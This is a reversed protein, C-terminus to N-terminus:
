FRDIIKYLEELAKDPEFAKVQDICNYKMQLVEDQNNISWKILQVLATSNELSFIKGTYNDIVVEKNFHWDSAIVPLGAKLCEIIAIPFGEGDYFTPFLMMYHKSLTEIANSDDLYPWVHVYAQSEKVKNEFEEKYDDQPAGYIDLECIIKEADMNVRRIADIASSIGKEKCVRSYTCFRYPFCMSQDLMRLDDIGDRKSFVPAYYVHPIKKKKLFEQIIRTEVFTADVRQLCKSTVPEDQYEYMLSGGVLSFLIKNKLIGRLFLTIPLITRRGNKGLVLVLIDSDVMVRVLEVLKKLINKKWYRTDMSNVNAEGYRKTLYYIYDRTKATQGNYVQEGRGIDGIVTIKYKKKM